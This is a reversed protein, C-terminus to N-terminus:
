IHCRIVTRCLVGPGSPLRWLVVRSVLRLLTPSCSWGRPGSVCERGDISGRLRHHTSASANEHNIEGPASSDNAGNRDRLM